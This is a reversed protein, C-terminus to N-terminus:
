KWKTQKFFVTDTFKIFQIVAKKTDGYFQISSDKASFTICNILSDCFTVSRTAYDMQLLSGKFSMRDFGSDFVFPITDIETRLPLYIEGSDQPPKNFLQVDAGFPDVVYVDYDAVKAACKVVTEVKYIGNNIAVDDGKKPLKVVTTTNLIHGDTDAYVIKMKKQGDAAGIVLTLLLAIFYKM